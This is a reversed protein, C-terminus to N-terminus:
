KDSYRRNIPDYKSEDRDYHKWAEKHKLAIITKEQEFIREKQYDILNYLQKIYDLVPHDKYQTLINNVTSCNMPEYKLPIDHKSM